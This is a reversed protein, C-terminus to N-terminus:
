NGNHNRKRRPRSVLEQPPLFPFNKLKIGIAEEAAEIIEKVLKPM